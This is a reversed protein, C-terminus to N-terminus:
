SFRIYDIETMSGLEDIAPLWMELLVDLLEHVFRPHQVMDTLLKDMGRLAWARELFGSGLSCGRFRDTYAAAQDRIRQVNEPGFM